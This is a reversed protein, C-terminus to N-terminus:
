FLPGPSQIRQGKKRVTKKAGTRKPKASATRVKARKKRKAMTLGRGDATHMGNPGIMDSSDFKKLPIPLLPVNNGYRRM